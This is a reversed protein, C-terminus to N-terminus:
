PLEENSNGKEKNEKRNKIDKRKIEAAWQGAYAFFLILILLINTDLVSMLKKLLVFDKLYPIMLIILLALVKSIFSISKVIKSQKAFTDVAKPISLILVVLAAVFSIEDELAIVHNYLLGHGNNVIYASEDWDMLQELYSKQREEDFGSLYELQEAFPHPSAHSTRNASKLSVPILTRNEKKPVAAADIFCGNSDITIEIQANQLAHSVPALPERMGDIYVGAYKDAMVDYTKILKQLLGM